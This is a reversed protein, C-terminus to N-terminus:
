TAISSPGISSAMQGTSPPRSGLPARARTCTGPRATRTRGSSTGSGSTGSVTAAHGRQLLSGGFPWGGPRGILWGPPAPPSPGALQGTKGEEYQHAEEDQDGGREDQQGREVVANRARSVERDVECE